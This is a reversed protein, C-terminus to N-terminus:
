PAIISYNNPINLYQDIVYHIDGSLKRKMIGVFERCCDIRNTVAAVSVNYTKGMDVAWWPHDHLNTTSCSCRSYLSLVRYVHIVDFQIQYTSAGLCIFPNSYPPANTTQGAMGTTRPRCGGTTRGGHTVM